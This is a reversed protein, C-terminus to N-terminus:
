VERINPSISTLRLETATMRRRTTNQSPLSPKTSGKSLSRIITTAQSPLVEGLRAEISTSRNDITQMRSNVENRFNAFETPLDPSQTQQQQRLQAISGKLDKIGVGGLSDRPGFLLGFPVMIAVLGGGNSDGWEVHGEFTM